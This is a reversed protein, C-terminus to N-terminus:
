YNNVILGSTLKERIGKNVWCTTGGKHMLIIEDEALAFRAGSVEVLWFPEFAIKADVDESPKSSLIKKVLKNNDSTVIHKQWYGNEDHNLVYVEGSLDFDLHHKTEFKYLAFAAILLAAIIALSYVIIRNSKNKPNVADELRM